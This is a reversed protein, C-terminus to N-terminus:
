EEDLASHARHVDGQVCILAAHCNYCSDPSKGMQLRVNERRGPLPLHVGSVLLAYLEGRM